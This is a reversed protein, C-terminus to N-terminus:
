FGTTTFSYSLSVGVNFQNPSGFRRTVPSDAAPGVLRKYGGFLTTSWTPSWRYEAAAAVGVSTFGGTPRYPEVRGNLQSEALTVGYVDRAFTTDGFEIRPGGSLTLAGLRAVGDVGITGVLGEHGVFGRRLEIRGRISDVPWFEVFVGPELAWRVDDLGVLRRDSGTYRGARYRVVPGIAFRSSDYLSFGAGDDPAAFRTEAGARRVSISPYGFLNTKDTGSWNPAIGVTGKVTVLWEGSSVSAPSYLPDAALAPAAGLCPLLALGALRLRTM